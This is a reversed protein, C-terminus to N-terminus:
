CHHALHLPTIPVFDDDDFSLTGFAIAGNREGKKVRIAETIMQELPRVDGDRGLGRSNSLEPPLINTEFSSRRNYTSQSQDTRELKSICDDLADAISYHLKILATHEYAAIEGGQFCRELDRVSPDSFLKFYDQFDVQPVITTSGVFDQTMMTSTFGVAAEVENLFVFKAKMDNKLYMELAALLFGGRWSHEQSGSSWRSPKGVGGKPNYFFPVIHPNCQAAIFFQCNLMEALGSIPIDQRISGDYYTQDNEGYERIKGNADKYQLRVPPIFGPVAASALVASAITVNPASLYNVLVPPAKKSTSSLTICFIRGTKRFAEEFTLDATFWKIKEQWVHYDFMHGNKGVSEMRDKWPRDFCTLRKALVEPQLLKELESDARTCVLAGIVSGASTGSVIHPLIGERALGRIIGLHYLGMMAGGSLCLSTRGYSTRARKLFELVQDRHVSPLGQNFNNPYSNDHRAIDGLHPHEGDGTSTTTATGDDKTAELDKGDVASREDIGVLSKWLKDKERKFESQVNQKYVKKEAENVCDVMPVSLAQDTIWHLTEVVEHMFEKVIKKPEGTNSYSFLDMSMIGGVNLRTCQQIVALALISDCNERATRMDKMLEKFFGWNYRYSTEDDCHELWINRKQSEDLQQAYGHWEQYSSSATMLKRLRRHKPTAILSECARIILRIVTYVVLEVWILLYTLGLVPWRLVRASWSMLNGPVISLVGVVLLLGGFTRWLFVGLKWDLLPWEQAFWAWWTLEAVRPPRPLSHLVETMNFLEEASIHGDQNTDFHKLLSETLPNSPLHPVNEAWLQRLTPLDQQQSHRSWNPLVLAFFRSLAGELFGQADSVIRHVLIPISSVIAPFLVEVYFQYIENVDLKRSNGGIDQQEQQQPMASQQAASEDAMSAGEKNGRTPSM